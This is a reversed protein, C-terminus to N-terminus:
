VFHVGQGGPFLAVGRHGACHAWRVCACASPIAAMDEDMDVDSLDMAAVIM